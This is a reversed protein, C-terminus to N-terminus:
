PPPAPPVSSSPGAPCEERDPIYTAIADEELHLNHELVARVAAPPTFTAVPAPTMTPVGGLAVVKDALFM